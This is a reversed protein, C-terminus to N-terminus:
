LNGVLKWDEVMDKAEKLGYNKPFGEYSRLAKIALIKNNDILQGDIYGILQHIEDFKPVPNVISVPPNYDPVIQVKSDDSLNYYQRILNCAESNTLNIIM